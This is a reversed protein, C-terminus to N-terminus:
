SKEDGNGKVSSIGTKSHSEELPPNIFKKYKIGM